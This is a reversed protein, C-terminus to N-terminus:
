AARRLRKRAFSTLMKWRSSAVSDLGWARIHIGRLDEYRGEMVKRGIIFVRDSNYRILNTVQLRILVGNVEKALYGPIPHPHLGALLSELEEKASQGTGDPYPQSWDFYFADQRAAVLPHIKGPNTPLPPCPDIGRVVRVGAAMRDLREWFTALFASEATM